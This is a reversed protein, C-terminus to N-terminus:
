SACSISTIGNKRVNSNNFSQPCPFPNSANFHKGAAKSTSSKSRRNGTRKGV